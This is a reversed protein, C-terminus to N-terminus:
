SEGPHTQQWLKRHDAQWKRSEDIAIKKNMADLGFLSAGRNIFERQARYAKAEGDWSHMKFQNHKVHYLEFALLSAALFMAASEPLAQRLYTIRDSIGKFNYLILNNRPGLGIGSWFSSWKQEVEHATLHCVCVAGNPLNHPPTGFFNKDPACGALFYEGAPPPRVKMVADIMPEFITEIEPIPAAAGDRLFNFTRGDRKVSHYITNNM